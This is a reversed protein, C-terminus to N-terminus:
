EALGADGTSPPRLRGAGAPAGSPSPATVPSAPQVGVPLAYTAVLRAKTAGANSVIYTDGEEALFTQGVSYRQDRGGSRVTMQGELVTTIGRANARLEPSSSGPDMDIVRQMLDFTGPVGTLPLSGTFLVNAAVVPSPFRTDPEAFPESASAFCSAFYIARNTGSDNTHRGVEKAPTVITKGPGAVTASTRFRNTVQGEVVTAVCGYPHSHTVTQAGSAYEVVYHTIESSGGSSPTLTAPMPFNSEYVVRVSPPQQASAKRAPQLGLALAVGIAILVLSVRGPLTAPLKHARMM